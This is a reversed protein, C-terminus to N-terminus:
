GTKQEQDKPPPAPLIVKSQSYVASVIAIIIGVIIIGFTLSICKYSTGCNKKPKKVSCSEESITSKKYVKSTSPFPDSPDNIGTNKSGNGM